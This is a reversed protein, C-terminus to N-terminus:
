IGRDLDSTELNLTTGFSGVDRPARGTWHEVLGSADARVRYLRDDHARMEAYFEVARLYETSPSILM